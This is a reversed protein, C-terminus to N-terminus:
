QHKSDPQTHAKEFKERSYIYSMPDIAFIKRDNEPILENLLEICKQLKKVEGTDWLIYTSSYDPHIILINIWPHEDISNSFEKDEFISDKYFISDSKIFWELKNLKDTDIRHLPIFTSVPYHKGEEIECFIECLLGEKLLKISPNGRRVNIEIRTIEDWTITGKQSFLFTSYINCLLLLIVTKM